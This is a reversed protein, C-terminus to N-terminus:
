RWLYRYCKNVCYYGHITPTPPRSANVLFQPTSPRSTPNSDM